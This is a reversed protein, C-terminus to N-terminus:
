CKKCMECLQGERAINTYGNHTTLGESIWKDCKDCSITYYYDRIIFEGSTTIKRGACQKM